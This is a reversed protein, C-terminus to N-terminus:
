IKKIRNVKKRLGTIGAFKVFIKWVAENPPTDENRCSTM